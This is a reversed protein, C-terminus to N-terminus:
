GNELGKWKVMIKVLCVSLNVIKQFRSTVNNGIKSSKCLFFFCLSIDVQKMAILKLNTNVYLVLVKSTGLGHRLTQNSSSM